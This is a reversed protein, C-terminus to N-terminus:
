GLREEIERMSRVVEDEVFECYRASEHLADALRQQLAASEQIVGTTLGAFVSYPGALLPSCLIGFANGSLALGAADACAEVDSAVDRLVRAGSVLADTNLEIDSTTM